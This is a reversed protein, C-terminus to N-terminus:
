WLVTHWDIEESEDDDNLCLYKLLSTGGSKKLLKQAMSTTGKLFIDGKKKVSVVYSTTVSGWNNVSFAHETTSLIGTSKNFTKPTRLKRKRQAPRLDLADVEIDVVGDCICNIARELSAACIGLIGVMGIAALMDMQLATVEVYGM